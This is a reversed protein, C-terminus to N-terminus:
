ARVSVGKEVIHFFCNITDVTAACDSELIVIHHHIKYDIACMRMM